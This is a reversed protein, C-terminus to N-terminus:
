SEENLLKQRGQDISTNKAGNAAILAAPGLRQDGEVVHTDKRQPWSWPVSARLHIIEGLVELENVGDEENELLLWQGEEM